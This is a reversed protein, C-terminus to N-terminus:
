IRRLQIKVQTLKTETLENTRRLLTNLQFLSALLAYIIPLYGAERLSLFDEGSLQGLREEDITCLGQLRADPRQGKQLVLEIDSILKLDEMRQCFGQTQLGHRADSDLMRKIKSLYATENGNVDFLPMGHEESVSESNLDVGYDYPQNDSDSQMLFFPYTEMLNPLYLADWRDNAVFLNIGQEFGCLASLSLENSHTVRTFFVPFCLSAKVVEIARLSMLHQNSALQIAGSEQVKLSGHDHSTLRTLEAM